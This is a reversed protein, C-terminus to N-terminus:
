SFWKLVDAHSPAHRLDQGVAAISPPKSLCRRAVRMLDEATVADIRACVEHPTERRGHTLVQRGIDEFLVLRSELHTLVNCKLMNRARSLEVPDVEKTALRAFHECFVHLLHAAQAPDSAGAIGLLGSDAHILTFAEAAEAWYYRNLVERYLRSYMGKGPGGASFSDGGGLLVQLVCTPVLDDDDWGGVEFGVAVRTFLEKTDMQVTAGGGVYASPPCAVVSSGAAPLSRFAEAVMAVFEAHDVGAGAVVARPATLFKARYAHVLEAGLAPAREPPCFHPRGLPTGKYAAGQLAEKLALDAPIADAHLAMLTRADEIEDPAVRPRLVGDALVDLARPLADRLCDVCYLLQERNANATAMGGLGEIEGLVQEHTRNYTSKFAMLEM